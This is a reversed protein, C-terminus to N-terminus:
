FVKESKSRVYIDKLLAINKARGSGRNKFVSIRYLKHLDTYCMSTAEITDLITNWLIYEKNDDKEAIVIQGRSAMVFSASEWQFYAKTFDFDSMWNEYIKSSYILFSTISLLSTDDRAYYVQRSVSDVGICTWLGPLSLEGEFTRYKTRNRDKDYSYWVVFPSRSAAPAGGGDFAPIDRHSVTCDLVPMISLLLGIRILLHMQPTHRRTSNM